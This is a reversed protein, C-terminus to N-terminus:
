PQHDCDGHDETFEQSAKSAELIAAGVEDIPEVKFQDVQKIHKNTIGAVFMADLLRRIASSMRYSQSIFTKM